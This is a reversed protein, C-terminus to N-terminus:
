PGALVGLDPGEGFFGQSNLVFLVVSFGGIGLPAINLWGPVVLDPLPEISVESPQEPPENFGGVAAALAMDGSRALEALAADIRQERTYDASDDAAAFKVLEPDLEVDGSLKVEKCIVRRARTRPTPIRSPWALASTCLALCVVVRAVMTDIVNSPNYYQFGCDYDDYM